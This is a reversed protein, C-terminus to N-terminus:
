PWSVGATVVRNAGDRRTGAVFRAQRGLPLSVDGELNGGRWIADVRQIARACPPSM